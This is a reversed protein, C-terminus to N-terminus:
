AADPGGQRASRRSAEYDAWRTNTDNVALEESTLDVRFPIGPRSGRKLLFLGLGPPDDGESDSETDSWTTIMTREKAPM